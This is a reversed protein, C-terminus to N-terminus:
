TICNAGSINWAPGCFRCLGHRAPRVWARRWPNTWDWYYEPGPVPGPFNAIGTGRGFAYFERYDGGGYYGPHPADLNYGYYSAPNDVLCVKRGGFFGFPSAVQAAAPGASVTLVALACGIQAALCRLLDRKM